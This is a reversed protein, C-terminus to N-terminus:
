AAATAGKGAAGLYPVALRLDAALRAYEAAQRAADPLRLVYSPHVTVLLEAGPGLPVVRGREEGVRVDRGTLARAATAGLAVVLRPRLLDRELALWTGCAEVEGGDPKQHIRRKGRPAFKFHKVANTLYLRSRDLGAEALARDLLQGAPGVFPRGELDEWDGPQEGVLMVRADRPGEGFVTRTAPEWLPCARCAAAAERAAELTAPREVVATAASRHRPHLLAIVRGARAPAPTPGAALTAGTRAAASGALLAPVARTEPMDRRYREPVHRRMLAPNARAPDFAAAYYARWDEDRADEAPVDARCGGPGFVVEHGDWHASRHPTVVLWRMATFRQALFPACLELVRHEPEFWAVYRPGARTWVEKFRLFAKLRHAERDVARAMAELRAVDGDTPRDLLRREGGRVIRWLLKYLLSWRGADAHLAARKALLVFRLPVRPEAPVRPLGAGEEGPPPPPPPVDDFLGPQAEGVRWAADEPRVGLALLRRAAERWGEFDTEHDLRTEPV